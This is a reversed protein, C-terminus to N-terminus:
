AHRKQRYKRARLADAKKKAISTCETSCYRQNGSVLFSKGCILCSKMSKGYDWFINAIEDEIPLIAKEYYRCLSSDTFGITMMYCAGDLPLCEAYNRDYNACKNVVSQAILRKEKATLERSM